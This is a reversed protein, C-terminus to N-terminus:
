FLAFRILPGDNLNLGRQLRAAEQQIAEARQAEHCQSLDFREFAVPQDPAANWQSWAEGVQQFRLRLADHHRLLENAARELVAPNIPQHLVLLMAQNFHHPDPQNQELFWSEIPTLLVEGTVPAQEALIAKSSGVASALEAVTQHQFLHRPLLQLGAKAARMVIQISLISDGGLEFFNDHM